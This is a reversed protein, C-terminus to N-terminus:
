FLLLLWLATWGLSVIGIALGATSVDGYPAGQAARSRGLVGLVVAAVGLPVSVIGFVLPIIAFVLSVLGVVFAAVGVGNGVRPAPARPLVEDWDTM